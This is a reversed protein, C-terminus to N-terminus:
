VTIPWGSDSRRRRRRIGAWGVPSRVPEVTPGPRAHDSGPHGVKRGVQRFGRHDQEAVALALEVKMEARRPPIGADAVGPEGGEAVLLGLGRGLGQGALPDAADEGAGVGARQLGGRRDGAPQVQGDGDGRRDALAVGEGAVNAARHGLECEAERMEVEGVDLLDPPRGGLLRGLLDLGAGRQEAGLHRRQRVPPV